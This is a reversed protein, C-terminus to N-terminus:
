RVSPHLPLRKKEWAGRWRERKADPGAPGEETWHPKGFAKMCHNCPFRDWDSLEGKQMFALKDAQAKHILGLLSAHAEPLSVDHLDAAIDRPPGDGESPIGAHQCCLNMRGYMDVHVQQQTFATCVHFPQEKYFGEPTTIQITLAKQLREIRDMVRRWEKATLYLEADFHTGTPQMMVFSVGAAGLQSGLLGIAELEGINRAHLTANFVFKIGLATCAAVAAMVTRFSGCGRIGDHMAETAGDLSFNVATLAALRKPGLSRAVGAFDRGNSVMHWTFDNDVAADVLRLFEPHLTPEGGTFATHNSRYLTRADRLIKAVLDVSLDVPKKQPDRLCHDCDLNCRDTVHFTIWEFAM